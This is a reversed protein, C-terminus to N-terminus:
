GRKRSAKAKSKAKSTSAATVEAAGLSGGGGELADDLLGEDQLATIFERVFPEYDFTRKVHDAQSVLLKNTLESLRAGGFRCKGRLISAHM